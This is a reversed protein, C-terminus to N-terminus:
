RRGRKRTDSKAAKCREPLANGKLVRFRQGKEPIKVFPAASFSREGQEDIRLSKEPTLTRQHM